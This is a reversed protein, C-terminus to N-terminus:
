INRRNDYHWQSARLVLPNIILFVLKHYPLVWWLIATSYILGSLVCSLKRASSPTAKRVLYEVPLFVVVLALWIVPSFYSGISPLMETEITMVQFYWVRLLSLFVIGLFLSGLFIGWSMESNKNM